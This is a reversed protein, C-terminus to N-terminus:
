GDDVEEQLWRYHNMIGQSPIEIMVVNIPIGSAALKEMHLRDRERCIEYILTALEMDDMSRIQEGRTM